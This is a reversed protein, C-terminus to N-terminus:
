VCFEILWTLAYWGFQADWPKLTTALASPQNHMRKERARLLIMLRLSKRLFELVPPVAWLYLAQMGHLSRPLFCFIQGLILYPFIKHRCPGQKVGQKQRHSFGPWLAGSPVSLAEPNLWPIHQSLFKAEQWVPRGETRRLSGLESPSSSNNSHQVNSTLLCLM